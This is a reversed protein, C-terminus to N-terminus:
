DDSLDVHAAEEDEEKVVVVDDDGEDGDGKTKKAKVKVGEEDDDDDDEAARKGKGKGKGNGTPTATAKAATKRPPTGEANALLKKKVPNFCASASAVTKYGMIEALKHFNIQAYIHTPTRHATEAALM